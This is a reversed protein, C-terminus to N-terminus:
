DVTFVWPTGHTLQQYGVEPARLKLSARFQRPDAANDPFMDYHCPIAVRPKVQSALRAAEFHSLNNYGGNICTIM